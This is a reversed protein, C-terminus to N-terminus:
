IFQANEARESNEQELQKCKNGAFIGGALLAMSLAAAGSTACILPIFPLPTIEFAALLIGGTSALLILGLAVRTITSRLFQYIFSPNIVDYTLDDRLRKSIYDAFVQAPRGGTTTHCQFQARIYATRAVAYTDLYVYLAARKAKNRAVVDLVSTTDYTPTVTEAFAQSIKSPAVALQQFYDRSVEKPIVTDAYRDWQAQYENHASVLSVSKDTVHSTFNLAQTIELYFVSAANLTAFDGLHQNYAKAAELAATHAATRAFEGPKSKKNYADIALAIIADITTSHM